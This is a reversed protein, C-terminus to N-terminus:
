KENMVWVGDWDVAPPTQRFIRARELFVRSPRDGPHLALADNFCAIADDWRQTRYSSIGANFHAVTRQLNPFSDETFHDMAEYIAVPETKGKVRLLDIARLLHKEKLELRTSESILVKSGYTKTVGELRSALNVSDGIVTYEMRKPSGINGVVVVGTSIGVGISIADVGAAVRQQNLASLAVFMGNAVNVADDADREGNFPVGFLAMIADGIFKDLVGRNTLVVDVMREFYQNLMSVTERAGLAESVTTFDRVDSFLISVKQDKGGLVSEGGALLQDAVAPSMYRSMTNKMRKESTIDELVIMSGLHEGAADLLPNVALNVSTPDKKDLTLEAGVTIERNGGDRVKNINQLVWEDAGQFLERAPRHIIREREHAFIRLAAENATLITDQADLTVIGDSTSRLISDNYNKERLVDEFLKANELAVAIQATFAGLRSEDRSTFKGGRKNLVQTVGICFDAKNIIPMTLMSETHYGTRRDVEKNFRPDGYPDAINETKGTTFVAGAIGAKSPFRIEKTTLGEAVRSFLEGTKSDHLFLTSRDADLLDTTAHMIRSLLVDLNLEGALDHSLALIQAEERLNGMMLNFGRYLEAYEDTTTAHLDATLDGNEVARMALGLRAASRSVEAATLISMALVGVVCIVVIGAVWILLPTMQATSAELGLGMLIRDTKFLVTGALYLLPLLTVFISMYLLKSKLRIAILERQHEPEIRECYQWLREVDPALKTAIIFFECIAHAPGAFFIVTSTLGVIQWTAWGSALYANALVMGIAMLAAASPGHFLTVRLFSHFPLNLMDVIARSTDHSTPKEGSDITGLVAAIRRVQRMILYIDPITYLPVIIAALLLFDLWQRSVFELGLYILFFTIALAAVSGGLYTWILYLRYRTVERSGSQPPAGPRQPQLVNAANNSATTM